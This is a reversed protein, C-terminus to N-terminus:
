FVSSWIQQWHSFFVEAVSTSNSIMYVARQVKALGGAPVVTPPQYNLGCKFGTPCWDVLQITHKTKITAVAVIWMPEPYSYLPETSVGKERMVAYLSPIFSAQSPDPSESCSGRGVSGEVVVVQAIIGRGKLLSWSSM